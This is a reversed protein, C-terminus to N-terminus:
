VPGAIIMMPLNSNKWLFSGAYLPHWHVTSGKVIIMWKLVYWHEISTLFISWSTWYPKMTSTGALLAWNKSPDVWPVVMFSIWSSNIPIGSDSDHLSMEKLHSNNGIARGFRDWNNDPPLLYGENTSGVELVTFTPDNGEIKRMVKDLNLAPIRPLQHYRWRICQHFACTLEENGDGDGDILM